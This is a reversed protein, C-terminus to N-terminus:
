ANGPVFLCCDTATHSVHIPSCLNSARVDVCGQSNLRIKLGTSSVDTHSFPYSIARYSFITVALGMHTPAQLLDKWHLSFNIGVGASETDM